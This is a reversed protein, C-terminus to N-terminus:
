PEHFVRRYRDWRDSSDEFEYGMSVLLAQAEYHTLGEAIKIQGSVVVSKSNIHAWVTKYIVGVWFLGEHNM